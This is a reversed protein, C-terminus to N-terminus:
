PKRRLTGNAGDPFSFYTRMTRKVNDYVCKLNMGGATKATHEGTKWDAYCGPEVYVPKEVIRDRYVIKTVVKPEPENCFTINGTDPGIVDVFKEAVDGGTKMFMWVILGGIILWGIFPLFRKVTRM